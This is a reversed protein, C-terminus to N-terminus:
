KVKKISLYTNEQEIVSNAFERFKAYEASPVRLKSTKFRRSLVLKNTGAPTFKLDYQMDLYKLHVNEPLEDFKFTPDLSIEFEEDYYDATEYRDLCFTNKRLEDSFLEPEFMVDAFPLKLTYAAGVKILAKSATANTTINYTSKLTKFDEVEFKNLTLGTPYIRSLSKILEEKQLDQTVDQFANKHVSANYGSYTVKSEVQVEQNSAIKIKTKRQIFDSEKTVGELQALKPKAGSTPQAIDLINARYHNYGLTGFSMDPSTLELYQPKGDIEVKVICHDFDLSPMVIAQQGNHSNSILVLDSKLGAKNAISKYFTSVDKCDGVKTHYVDSAAQPIIGSQRFSISSYQINKVIYNYIEVAKQKQSYAALGKPFIEEMLAQDDYDADSQIETLKQYWNVIDAWEAKSAIHMTQAMDAYAPSYSEKPILAPKEKEYTAIKFQHLKREIPTLSGNVFKIQHGISTDIVTHYRSRVVPAYSDFGFSESFFRGIAGPTEYESRYKVYVCDGIELGTFVVESGHREADIKQGNKKFIQTKELVDSGFSMKQFEELGGQTLMQAFYNRVKASAGGGVQFYAEEDFIVVFDYGEKEITKNAKYKALETEPKLFEVEDYIDKEHELKYLKNKLRLSFPIVSIADKYADKAKIQEDSDIYMEAARERIAVDYPRTAAIETLVALAEKYKKKSHLYASKAYMVDADLGGTQQYYKDVLDFYKREQNNKKYYDSLIGFFSENYNKKEFEEVIKIAEKEQGDVEVLLQHMARVYNADNKNKKFRKRIEDIIKMNEGKLMFVGIEYNSVAPVESYLEMITDAIAIAKSKNDNEVAESYDLELVALSHPQLERFKNRFKVEEIENNSREAWRILYLQLLACNEIRTAQAKLVKSMNTMDHLLQYANAALLTHYLSQPQTKLNKELSTVAFHPVKEILKTNGKKYRDSFASSSFGVPKGTNIDRFRVMFHPSNANYSGLQVLVRHEGASLNVKYNFADYRSVKTDKIAHVLVDDIWVKLNGSYGISLLFDGETPVTIFSQAFTLKKINAFNASKVVRGMNYPLKPEFWKLKTGNENTFQHSAQYYSLADAVKDYASNMEDEYPGLFSWKEVMKLQGNLIELSDNKWTFIQEYLKYFIANAQVTPHTNPNKILAEVNEQNMAAGTNLEGLGASNNMLSYIVSQDANPLAQLQHFYKEHADAIPLVEGLLVLSALAEQDSPNKTILVKLEKIATDHDNKEIKDWIAKVASSNQGFIQGSFSLFCLVYLARKKLSLM